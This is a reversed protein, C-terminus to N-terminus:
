GPCSTDSEFRTWLRQLVDQGAPTDFLALRDVEPMTLLEAALEPTDEGLVSAFHEWSVFGFDNDCDETIEGAEARRMADLARADQEAWTEGIWLRIRTM